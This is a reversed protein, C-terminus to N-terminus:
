KLYLYDVTWDFAQLYKHTALGTHVRVIPKKQELQQVHQDIHLYTPLADSHTRFLDKSEQHLYEKLAELFDYQMAIWSPNLHAAKNKSVQAHIIQM